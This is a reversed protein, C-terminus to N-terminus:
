TINQVDGVLSRHFSCSPAATQPWPSLPLSPPLCRHHFGLCRLPLCCDVLFRYCYCRFCHHHRRLHRCGQCHCRCHRRRCHAIVAAVRCGHRPLPLVLLPLSPPPHPTSTMERVNAYFYMCLHYCNSQTNQICKINQCFVKHKQLVNLPANWFVCLCLFM